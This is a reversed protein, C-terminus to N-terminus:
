EEYVMRITPKTYWDTSLIPNAGWNNFEVYAKTICFKEYPYKFDYPIMIAHPDQGKTALKITLNTTKDYLYPQNNSSLLSFNKDVTKQVTIAPIHEM